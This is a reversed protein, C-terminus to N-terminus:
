QPSPKNKLIVQPSVVTFHSQAGGIQSGATTTFSMNGAQDTGPHRHLRREHRLHRLQFENRQEAPRIGPERAADALEPLCADRRAASDRILSLQGEAPAYEYTATGMVPPNGATQPIWTNVTLTTANASIVASAASMDQTFDYLAQRSRSELQEENGQRMLGRGLFIYASLVGAFVIGSIVTVVMVELLTFAQRRPVRASRGKTHPPSDMKGSM